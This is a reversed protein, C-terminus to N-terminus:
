NDEILNSVTNANNNVTNAIVIATIAVVPAFFNNTITSLPQGVFRGM